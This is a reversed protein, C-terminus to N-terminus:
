SEVQEMPASKREDFGIALTSREDLDWVRLTPLAWSEGAESSSEGCGDCGIHWLLPEREIMRRRRM